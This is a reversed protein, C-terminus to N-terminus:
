DRGSQRDDSEAPAGAGPGPAVESCRETALSAENLCTVRRRAGLRPGANCGPPRGAGGPRGEKAGARARCCCTGSCARPVAPRHLNILSRPVPGSLTSRKNQCEDMARRRVTIAAPRGGATKKFRSQLVESKKERQRASPSFVQTRVTYGRLAARSGWCHGAMAGLVCRACSKRGSGPSAMGREQRSDSRPREGGAQAGTGAGSQCDQDM